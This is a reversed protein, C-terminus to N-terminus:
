RARLEEVDAGAGDDVCLGVDPGESAGQIGAEDTFGGKLHAGVFGAAGKAEANEAAVPAEGVLVGSAGGFACVGNLGGLGLRCAVARSTSGASATRSIDGDALGNAVNDPRTKFDFRRLTGVDVLEDSHNLM